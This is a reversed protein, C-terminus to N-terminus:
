NFFTGQPLDLFLLYDFLFFTISATGIALLLPKVFGELLLLKSFGIVTFFTVLYFGFFHIGIIWFLFFTVMGLLTRIGQNKLEFNFSPKPSRFFVWLCGLVSFIILLGVFFPFTGSKPLNITGIGIFSGEIVAIFGILSILLIFLFEAIKEM